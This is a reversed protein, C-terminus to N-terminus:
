SAADPKGEMMGAAVLRSVIPHDHPLAEHNKERPIITYHCLEGNPQTTVMKPLPVKEPHAESNAAETIGILHRDHDAIGGARAYSEYQEVFEKRRWKTENSPWDGWTAWGGWQIVIHNIIPDDFKISEYPGITHMAYMAKDWALASRSELPMGDNAIAERLEAVTPLNGAFTRTRVLHVIGRKIQDIPFDTLMEAYIELRASTIPLGFAEALIVLQDIIKQKLM